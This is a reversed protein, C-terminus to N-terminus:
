PGIWLVVSAAGKGEIRFLDKRTALYSRWTAHGTQVKVSEGKMANGLAVLTSRANGKLFLKLRKDLASQKVPMCPAAMPLSKQVEALEPVYAKEDNTPGSFRTVEVFVSCTARYGAGTQTEGIGIIEHGLERLHEALYAYDADSAAIILTHFSDRLALSVAEISLLLDAANKGTRTPVLRYGRDAWGAIQAAKGYVRRVTPTGYEKAIALVAEAFDSSLNEGDVLVAVPDTQVALAVRPSLDMM